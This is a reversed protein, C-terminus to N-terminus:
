AQGSSGLGDLSDVLVELLVKLLMGAAEDVMEQM